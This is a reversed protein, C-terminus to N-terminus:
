DSTRTPPTLGCGRLIMTSLFDAIQDIQEREYEAHNMITLVQTDFDAYHQTTSWIMFILQVPDVPEMRGQEAWATIVAAKDRVWRRMDTRIYDKIHPAGQIIEMAFVKSAQPHTYALEVKKRIFRDLVEAPDDDVDVAEFFGNWLETINNLVALYLRSKGSFYYHINAKAIGARDAIKQTSTGRYGHLAFEHEAAQLIIQFNRDRIGGSKYRRKGGASTSGANSGSVSVGGAIDADGTEAEADQETQCVDRPSM